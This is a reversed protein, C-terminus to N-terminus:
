RQLLHPFTQRERPAFDRWPPLSNQRTKPRQGPVAESLSLGPSLHLCRRWALKLASDKLGALAPTPIVATEALPMLSARWLRSWPPALALHLGNGGAQQSLLRPRFDGVLLWYNIRYRHGPHLVRQHLELGRAWCRCLCVAVIFWKM